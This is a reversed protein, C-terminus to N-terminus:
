KYTKKETTYQIYIYMDKEMEPSRNLPTRQPTHSSTTSCFAVRGGELLQISLLFEAWFYSFSHKM